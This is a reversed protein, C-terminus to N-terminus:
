DSNSPSLCEVLHGHDSIGVANGISTTSDPTRPEYCKCCTRYEAVVSHCYLRLTDNALIHTNCECIDCDSEHEPSRHANISSPPPDTNEYCDERDTEDSGSVPTAESEPHQERGSPESQEYENPPPGRPRDSTSDERDHQDPHSQTRTEISDHEAEESRDGCYAFPALLRRLCCSGRSRNLGMDNSIGPRVAHSALQGTRCRRRAWRAFLGRHCRRDSTSVPRGHHRSGTNDIM